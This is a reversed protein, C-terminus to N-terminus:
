YTAVQIIYTGGWPPNPFKQTGPKRGQWVVFPEWWRSPGQFPFVKRESLRLLANYLAAYDKLYLNKGPKQTIDFLVSEILNCAGVLVNSLIPSWTNLNQDQPPVVKMFDMVQEELSKYWLLVNGAKIEDM